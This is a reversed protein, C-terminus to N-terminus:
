TLPEAALGDYESNLGTIKVMFIQNRIYEDGNARPMSVRLYNPTYGSLFRVSGEQIRRFNEFLVPYIKGYQRELFKRKLEAAIGHLQKCRDRTIEHDIQGPMSAAATGERPSYPFIHIHSFGIQRIFDLGREWHQETEGPFGVIIDTTINFDPVLARAKEVLRAFNSTNCRRAMRKLIEDNGSQLPLHMHPMLRENDFLGFFDEHLDWPEVSALRLRPIDTEVLISKLLQYLNSNNDSGYGGVHVGTLVAEKVGRLSLKNIQEIIDGADRSREPGRAVTVICFSCRHRCGDQVKIFARNRGRLFLPMEGPGTGMNPSAELALRDDVIDVLRDKDSNAVLLDIEALKDKLGPDLSASCGTVVLKSLPNRRHSRRILQRSKKVAENTVACTNLIILDADRSDNSITHGLGRFEEAWHELEAENLRCGLAKLHIRM